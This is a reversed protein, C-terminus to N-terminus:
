ASVSASPLTIEETKSVEGAHPSDERAESSRLRPVRLSRLGRKTDTWFEKTKNESLREFFSFLQPPFGLFGPFEPRGTM